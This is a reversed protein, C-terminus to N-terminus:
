YLPGLILRPDPYELLAKPRDQLSVVGPMDHTAPPHISLQFHVHPIFWGGNEHVDGFYGVIDGAAIAQGVTKGQLSTDSLHGYLAYVHRQHSEDNSDRDNGGAPLEHRIVVVNGYDGLDANYGVAHIVGPAFAYVTTGLPGDLDIGIHVTRRGAYGDIANDIDDFIDSEYMGARNEDYRGIAYSGQQLLEPRKLTGNRSAQREQETALQRTSSHQTFDLIQLNPVVNLHREEQLVEREHRYDKNNNNDNDDDTLIVPFKVVPHFTARVAETIGLVNPYDEMSSLPPPIRFRFGDAEAAEVYLFGSVFLLTLFLLFM